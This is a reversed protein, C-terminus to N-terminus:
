HRFGAPRQNSHHGAEYRFPPRHKIPIAAPKVDSDANHTVFHFTDYQGGKRVVEAYCELIAADGASNRQRHYPAVATLAREAVRQKIANTIRMRRGGALLTEIWKVSGTVAGNTVVIKHDVESLNRLTGVKTADDGFKDVAERVLRFHTQLSRRAEAAVREKNRAFEDRVIDPVVLELGPRRASERMARIVAQQRWDKALDLWVSTDVLLWLTM